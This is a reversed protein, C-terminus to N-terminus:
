RTKFKESMWIGLLVLTLAIAHHVEFSESLVVVAMVAAFVPVLNMFVGARGPGIRDVGHIFFIQAIFSPFVIVLVLVLWGTSTPWLLAGTLAEFGALPLSIILAAGAMVAFMSMPSVVPRKFLAVAYGAYLCCALIMLLDGLAFDLGLLRELSGKSAVVTVGIVTLAVGVFQLPRIRQRYAIFAGILVFVPISGQMIGINLASTTHAAAYFLANFATFGLAGCAFLFPLHKRLVPWDKAVTPGLFVVCLLIVGTWRGLVLLMPSIDDVAIKGLVANGAWCLATAVLFAYAQPASRDPTTGAAQSV